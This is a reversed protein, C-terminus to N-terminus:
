QGTEPQVIPGVLWVAQAAVRARRRAHGGDAGHPLKPRGRL